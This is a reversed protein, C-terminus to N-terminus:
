PQRRKDRREFLWGVAGLIAFALAIGLAWELYSEWRVWLDMSVSVVVWLGIGLLLVAALSAVLKEVQDPLSHPGSVIGRGRSLEGLLGWACMLLWFVGIAWKFLLCAWGSWLRDQVMEVSFRSPERPDYRVVRAAADASRFLSDFRQTASHVRGDRSTYTVGLEYQYLRLLFSAIGATQFDEIITVNSPTAIVGIEGVESADRLVQLDGRQWYASCSMGGLGMVLWAVINASNPRAM